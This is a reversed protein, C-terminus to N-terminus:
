KIRRHRFALCVGGFALIAATSPEPVTTVRAVWNVDNGMGMGILTGSGYSLTGSDYTFGLEELDIGDFTLSGLIDEGAVYGAPAYLTAGFVPSHLFGFSDGSVSTPTLSNMPLVGLPQGSPYYIATLGAFASIQNGTVSNTSLELDAVSSFTQWSGSYTITTRDLTADYNFDLFIAADAPGTFSVLIALTAALTVVKNNSKM